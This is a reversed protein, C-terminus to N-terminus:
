ENFLELTKTFYQRYLNCRVTGENSGQLNVLGMSNLKFAQMKELKVANNTALVTRMADTLEPYQELKWLLRRLHEGYIGKDTPATELLQELNMDNKALRDFALRLLYPHGGVIGILPELKSDDWDLQCQKALARVQDLNFDPLEIPLGVNFPSQYFGLDIYVETSYVLILRLKKWIESNNLNENWVRLLAFFDSAIPTHPFIRDVRDLALVLPCNIQALLYDEFYVTCNDNSTFNDDWYDAVKNPLRLQRSISGCFWRLFLDKDTFIKEEALQFSLPVTRYNQERARYLIRAMLKTKGMLQPAKIRILATNPNLIADYCQQEIPPREIYIDTPKGPPLEPEAAPSPRTDPNIQIPEILPLAEVTAELSTTDGQELLKELIQQLIPSTDDPSRWKLYQIGYLYGRLDHNLSNMECNVLIPLIVPKRNKRGDRLEKARRVEEMIMESNASQPSFIVLFYDCANIEEDLRQPWKDGVKLSKHAMFVQYKAKTLSEYLKEALSLDPEQSRDSIFVRANPIEKKRGILRKSEDTHGQKFVWSNIITSVVNAITSAIFSM